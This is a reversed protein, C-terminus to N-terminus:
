LAVLQRGSLRTAAAIAAALRDPDHRVKGTPGECALPAGLCALGLDRFADLDTAAVCLPM